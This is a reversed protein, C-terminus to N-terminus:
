QGLERCLQAKIQRAKMGAAANTISGTVVNRGKGRSSYLDGLEEASCVFGSLDGQSNAFCGFLMPPHRSSISLEIQPLHSLISKAVSRVIEAAVTRRIGVKVLQEMACVLLAQMESYGRDFRDFPMQRRKLYDKVDQVRLETLACLDDRSLTPTRGIEYITTRNKM